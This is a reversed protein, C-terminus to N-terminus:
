ERGYKEQWQINRQTHTDIESEWARLVLATGAMAIAVLVVTGIISKIINIKKNRRERKHKNRLQKATM